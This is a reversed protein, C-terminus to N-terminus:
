NLVGTSRYLPTHDGTNSMVDITAFHRENV